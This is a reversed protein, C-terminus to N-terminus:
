KNKLKFDLGQGSFLEGKEKADMILEMFQQFKKKLDKDINKNNMKQVLVM